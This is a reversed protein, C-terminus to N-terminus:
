DPFDGVRVQSVVSQEAKGNSDTCIIQGKGQEILLFAVHDGQPAYAPAVATGSFKGSRKPSWFLSISRRLVDMKWLSGYADFLFVPEHPHWAPHRPGQGKTSLSKGQPLLDTTVAEYDTEMGYHLGINYSYGNHYAWAFAAGQMGWSLDKPKKFYGEGIEVVKTPLIPRPNIPLYLWVPYGIDGKVLSPEM